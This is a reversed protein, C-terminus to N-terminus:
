RSYIASMRRTRKQLPVLSTTGGAGALTMEFAVGGWYGVLNGLDSVTIAATTTNTRYFLGCQVWQTNETYLVTYGTPTTLGDAGDAGSGFYGVVLNGNTPASGLTLTASHSDGGTLQAGNDVSNQAFPTGTDYGTVDFAMVSFWGSLTEITPDLTVTMSGPSSGVDTYFVVANGGSSNQGNWYHLTSEDLKTWSLTQTDTITWGFGNSPSKVDWNNSEYFVAIFLRSTASPTFSGSTVTQQSTLATNTNDRGTVTFTM